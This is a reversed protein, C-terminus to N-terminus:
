LVRGNPLESLDPESHIGAHEESGVIWRVAQGRTVTVIGVGLKELGRHAWERTKQDMATGDVARAKEYMETSILKHAAQSVDETCRPTDWFLTGPGALM